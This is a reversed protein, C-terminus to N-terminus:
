GIKKGGEEILNKKELKPLTFYFSAGRKTQPHLWIKGKFTEVIKKCISLGLGLKDCELCSDNEEFLEVIKLKQERSIGSGNDSLAVKWFSGESQIHISIKPKKHLSTSKLANSILNQLLQVLFFHNVAVDPLLPAEIIVAQKSIQTSFIFKVDELAEKLSGKPELPVKDYLKTLTAIAKLLDNLQDASKTLIDAYENVNCSKLQKVDEKLIQSFNVIKRIGERLDHVCMKFFNKLEEIERNPTNKDEGEGLFRFLFYYLHNERERVELPGAFLEINQPSSASKHGLKIFQHLRGGQLVSELPSLSRGHVACKGMESIQVQKQWQNLTNVGGTFYINEQACHNAFLIEGQQDVVIFGYDMEQAVQDFLSHQLSVIQTKSPVASFSAHHHILTNLAELIDKYEVTLRYEFAREGLLCIVGVIGDQISPLLYINIKQKLHGFAVANIIKPRKNKYVDKLVEGWFHAFSQRHESIKGSL